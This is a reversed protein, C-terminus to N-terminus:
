RLQVEIKNLPKQLFDHAGRSLANQKAESSADGTLMLIPLYDDPRIVNTLQGIVALGDLHPMHFDLVVLDPAFESFTPLALRSDSLCKLNNYGALSLVAEMAGLNATEDDVIM